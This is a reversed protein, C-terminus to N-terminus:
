SIKTRILEVAKDTALEVGTERVGNKALQTLQNKATNNTVRPISQQAVTRVHSNLGSQVLNKNLNIGNVVAVEVPSTIQVGKSLRSALSAMGKAGLQKIGPIKSIVSGVAPLLSFAAVLGATKTDGEKAYLAADALGIGAALFPGIVPVFMAGVSLVTALTHPDISKFFQSQKQTSQKTTKPKNSNYGFTEPQFPMRSDMQELIVSYQRETIIYEM